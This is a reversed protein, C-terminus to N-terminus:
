GPRERRTAAKRIEGIKRAIPRLHTGSWYIKACRGCRQFANQTCFVYPPVLDRVKDKEIPSLEGNCLSCRPPLMTRDLGYAAVLEELQQRPHVGNVLRSTGAPMLGHLEVDKTLLVRNEGLCLKKLDADDAGNDYFTDIGLLRLWRATRGLMVDCAFRPPLRM